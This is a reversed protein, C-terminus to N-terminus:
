EARVTIKTIEPITKNDTSKLIGKIKISSVMTYLNSYICYIDGKKKTTEIKLNTDILRYKYDINEKLIEKGILFFKTDIILKLNYPYHPDVITEESDDRM